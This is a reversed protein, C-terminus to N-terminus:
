KTILWGTEMTQSGQYSTTVEVYVVDSSGAQVVTGLDDPDRWTVTVSQSWGPMNTIPQGTGDRPPAFTVGALDGLDTEDESEFPLQLTWEKLEQTLFLAETLKKGADNARSGSAASVLIAAAALGVIVITCLAEVLTFGRKGGSQGRAGPIGIEKATM